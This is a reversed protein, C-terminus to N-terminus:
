APVKGLTIFAPRPGPGPALALRAKECAPIAPRTAAGGAGGPWVCAPPAHNRPAATMRKM